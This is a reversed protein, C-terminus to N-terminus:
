FINESLYGALYAAAELDNIDCHRLIEDEVHRKEHGVVRRRAKEDVCTLVIVVIQKCNPNFLTWGGNKAEDSVCEAVEDIDKDPLRLKKLCSRIEAEDSKDEIEFYRVTYGYLPVTFRKKLM